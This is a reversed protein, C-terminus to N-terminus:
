WKGRYFVLVTPGDALEESLVVEEGLQDPLTFDPAKDGAELGDTTGSNELEQNAQEIKNVTAQPIDSKKKLQELKEQLNTIM